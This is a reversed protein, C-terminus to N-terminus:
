LNLIAPRRVERGLRTNGVIQAAPVNANDDPQVRRDASRAMREARTNARQTRIQTQEPPEPEEDQQWADQWDTNEEIGETWAIVLPEYDVATIKNLAKTNHRIYILKACNDWLMRNRDKSLIHNM